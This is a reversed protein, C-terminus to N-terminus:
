DHRAFINDRHWQLFKTDPVFREPLEIAKNELGILSDRIMVESSHRKLRKSVMVSFEDSLAILGEDFARDHLSSLCLGNRPNLRNSHDARWPVIHSAVLLRPESIGSMCCRGRYGSMVTRRFFWQKVRVQVVTKRVAGTYDDAEIEIFQERDASLPNGDNLGRLLEDCEVALRDWDSSYEDWIARDLKSAGKLGARGRGTVTPDFSALNTCKMAVSGPTRKLLAALKKIEPNRSHLQGFPLQCYLHFALKVQDRTWKDTAM